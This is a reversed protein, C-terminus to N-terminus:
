IENDAMILNVKHILRLLEEFEKEELADRMKYFPGLYYHYLSDLGKKGNETITLSYSRGDLRDYQKKILQKESLNEILRSIITKSVGMSRSLERPTIPQASLAIRFLMDIEQASASDGKHAKKVILNSFLRIEGLKEMSEIWDKDKMGLEAGHTPM